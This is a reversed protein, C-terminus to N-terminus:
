TIFCKKILNNLEKSYRKENLIDVLDLLDLFEFQILAVNKEINYRFYILFCDLGIIGLSWIEYNPYDTSTRIRNPSM